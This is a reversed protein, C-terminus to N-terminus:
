CGLIDVACFAVCLPSSVDQTAAHRCRRRQSSPRHRPRTAVPRAHQARRRRRAEGAVDARRGRLRRLMRLSAGLEARCSCSVPYESSQTFGRQLGWKAVSTFRVKLKDLENVPAHNDLLIKMVLTHGEEASLM